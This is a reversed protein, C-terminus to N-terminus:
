GTETWRVIAVWQGTDTTTDVWEPEIQISQRILTTNLSSYYVPTSDIVLDRATEDDSTGTLIYIRELTPSDGTIWKRSDIRETLTLAM